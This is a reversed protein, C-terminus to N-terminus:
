QARLSELQDAHEELHNILFRDVIQSVPMVGLTPHLGRVSWGRDAVSGLFARLDNLDERVDHWLATAGRHRDREIAEIREASAKTRGFPVPGPSEAALVREAQAIWYPIFEGLHAWIQGPDWEEGTAPDPPTRGELRRRALDRLRVEVAGLRRVFDAAPDPPQPAPAGPDSPGSSM